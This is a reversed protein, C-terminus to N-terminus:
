LLSGIARAVEIKWGAWVEICGMDHYRTGSETDASTTEYSITVYRSTSGPRLDFSTQNTTDEVSVAPGLELWVVPSTYVQKFPKVYRLPTSHPGPGCSVVSELGLAASTAGASINGKTLLRHPKGESLVVKISTDLLRNRVVIHEAFRQMLSSFGQPHIFIYADRQRRSSAWRSRVARPLQRGNKFVPEPAEPLRELIIQGGGPQQWQQQPLALLEDLTISKAPDVDSIPELQEHTRVKSSPVQAHPNANHNSM